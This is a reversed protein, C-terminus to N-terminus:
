FYVSKQEDAEALDTQSQEETTRDCSLDGEQTTTGKAQSKKDAM